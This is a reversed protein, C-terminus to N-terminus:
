QYDRSIESRDPGKGDQLWVVANTGDIKPQLHVTGNLIGEVEKRDIREIHQYSRYFM